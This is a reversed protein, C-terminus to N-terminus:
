QPPENTTTEPASVTGEVTVTATEQDLDTRLRIQRRVEGTETPEFNITVIHNERAEDAHEVRLGKGDGEIGTIKFARSGRVFVRQTKKDGVKLTGMTVLQPAVELSAQLKGDVAVSFVPSSADNTKLILEQKFSGAPADAKLTVSIRYGVRGPQPRGFVGRAPMPAQRYMEEATVKFPANANKVIESVRWDLNGAYEVEITQTPTQGRNVVGFNVSGPNFTVDQRSV